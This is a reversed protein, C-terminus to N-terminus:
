PITSATAAADCTPSRPVLLQFSTALTDARPWGLIDYSVTITVPEYNLADATSPDFARGVACPGPTGILRLGMWGGPALTFPAFPDGEVPNAAVPDQHAAEQDPVLRLEVWHPILLAFESRGVVGRVTIPLPGGNRVGSVIDYTADTDAVLYTVRPGTYGPPMDVVAVPRVSTGASEDAVVGPMLALAVVAAPVLLGLGTAVFGARRRLALLGIGLALLGIALVATALGLGAIEPYAVVGGGFPDVANVVPANPGGTVGAERARGVALAGVAIALGAAVGGAWALARAVVSRRAVAHEESIRDVRQRLGYPAPGPDRDRLLDRLERELRLDNEPDNM